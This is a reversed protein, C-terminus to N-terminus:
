TMLHFFREINTKLDAAFQNDGTFRLQKIGRLNFGVFKDKEESVSEDLFLLMDAAAKREAKAKGMVFGIEHYVNPNCYTLNGIMLGCDSMMEIIKDNIDYSTGDHFADVREVQIKPKLCHHATVEDCVRKITKFHDETKPKGYQMSVFVTRRRSELIKDFIQILDGASSQLILYLHNDLVWRVFSDIPSSPLLKYYVLAALLGTNKKERM